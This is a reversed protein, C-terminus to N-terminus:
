SLLGSLDLVRESWIGARKTVQDRRAADQRIQPWSRQWGALEVQLEVLEAATSIEAAAATWEIFYKSEDLLSGVVERSGYRSAFSSIRGLNAALGGLRTPLGDRLYRERINTSNRV